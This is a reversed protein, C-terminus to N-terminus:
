LSAYYKGPTVGVHKKFVRIFNAYDEFGCLIATDTVSKGASLLKKAETIRRSVIYKAVTTGCYKNFLRCLQNVSIYSNQAITELSLHQSFNRNIYDIAMKIASSGSTKEAITHSSFASNILILIEIAAINKIIDDGFGNEVDLREIYNIFMRRESDTLRIKNSVDKGRTYFCHSLDTKDSSNAYLFEPHVHMIYRRFKREPNSTIKHAEFQNIVFMDGDNVDYVKDNILFNQGGEICLLVECSDHIHINQDPNQVDSYNIGFCKTVSAYEAAEYCHEFM